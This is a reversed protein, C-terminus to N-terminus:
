TNRTTNAWSLHPWQTEDSVCRIREYDDLQYQLPPNIYHVGIWHPSCCTPGARSAVAIKWFWFSPSVARASYEYQAGLPLFLHRGHEDVIVNTTANVRALAVGTFLDEPGNKQKGWTGVYDKRASDGLAKLAARSIVIGSGGAYYQGRTANFKRGFISLSNPDAPRLLTLLNEWVIYTDDDAKVFWDYSDAYHEYCHMWAAKSKNWLRGRDEEGGIDLVVTNLGAYHQTTMFLLKDCRRGWTNNVATGKVAHAGPHTLIWCLVRPRTEVSRGRTEQQGNVAHRTGSVHYRPHTMMTWLIGCSSSHCDVLQVQGFRRKPAQGLCLAPTSSVDPPKATGETLMIKSFTKHGEGTPSALQWHFRATGTTPLSQEPCPAAFIVGTVSVGSSSSKLLENDAAICWKGSDYHLSTKGRQLRKIRLLGDTASWDFVTHNVEKGKISDFTPDYSGCRSALVELKQQNKERAPRVELCTVEGMRVSASNPGPLLTSIQGSAAAIPVTSAPDQKTVPHEVSVDANDLTPMITARPNNVHWIEEVNAGVSKQQEFQMIADNANQKEKLVASSDYVLDLLVTLWAATSLVLVIVASAHPAGVTGTTAM